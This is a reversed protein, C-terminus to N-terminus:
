FVQLILCKLYHTEPAAPLIPHDHAQARNEVLRVRKGSDRAAENVMDLFMNPLM